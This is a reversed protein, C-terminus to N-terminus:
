GRWPGANGPHYTDQFKLSCEKFRKIELHREMAIIADLFRNLEEESLTYAVGYTRHIDYEGSTSNHILKGLM